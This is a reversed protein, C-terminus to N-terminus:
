EVLTPKGEEDLVATGLYQMIQRKAGENRFSVFHGDYNGGTEWDTVVATIGTHTGRVPLDVQAAGPVPDDLPTAQAVRMGGALAKITPDPTYTDGIGWIHLINKPYSAEAPERIVYQAHTLPDVGHFYHQILGMVPHHDTVRSEGSPRVDGLGFGLAASIDTPSQKHLLSLSLGGGAGSLVAGRLRHSHAVYMFGTSAGQSHGMFYLQSPDFKVAKGTPSDTASWSFQSALRELQFQDAAAQYANGLAAAPNGFNFFLIEPPETSDGRRDAHQVQDISVVAFGTTGLETEIRSVGAAIGNTMPSRFRGGTGHAYLLVPWGAEPMPVKKPVSLAVCVDETRVISPADGTPGFDIGGGDAPQLYPANGAQFIPITVRGHIEIFDATESFCGAVHEDGALGDDCPSTVGEGCRVLESLAPAPGNDVTTRLGRLAVAPDATTFVAAARIRGASIPLEVDSDAVFARLAAHSAWAAALDPDSPVDSAMMAEFDADRAFSSGDSATLGRLVLAAYTTAPRLPRVWLPRLSLWNDCIYRGGSGPGTLLSWALPMRAGYDASGPTIDVLAVTDQEPNEASDRGVTVSGIDIERSLRFMANAATAYGTTDAEIADVFRSVPDYGFLSLPLTPHGSLDVHGDKVRVDSPFPLRYFEDVSAGARPVEFYVRAKGNDAPCERVQLWKQVLQGPHACSSDSGDCVLGSQCDSATHCPQYVDATGSHACVGSFGQYACYMGSHCDEGVACPGGAASEGQEICIGAISCVLGPSCEATIYCTSGEDRNGPAVCTTNECVLGPRCPTTETCSEGLLLGFQGQPTTVDADTLVIDAVTDPVSTPVDSAEGLCGTNGILAASLLATTTRRLRKARAIQADNSSLTTRTSM